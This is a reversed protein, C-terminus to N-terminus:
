PTAPPGDLLEQLRRHFVGLREQWVAGIEELEQQRAKLQTINLLVIRVPPPTLEADQDAPARQSRGGSAVVGQQTTGPVGQQIAGPVPATFERMMQQNRQRLHEFQQAVHWLDNALQADRGLRVVLEEIRAHEQQYHSVKDQALQIKMQLEMPGDDDSLSLRIDDGVFDGLPSRLVRLGLEQREEQYLTLQQYLGEDFSESLMGLLRSIQWDYADRLSEDLSDSHARVTDLAVDIRELRVVLQHSTVRARLLDSAEPDVRRLSDVQLDISDVQSLLRVRTSMLEDSVVDLHRRQEKIQSLDGIQATAPLCLFLLVLSLIQLPRNM